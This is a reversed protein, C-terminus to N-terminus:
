APTLEQPTTALQAALWDRAATEDLFIKAATTGLSREAQLKVLMASFLLCVPREQSSARGIVSAFGEALAGTQVQYERCDVFVGYRGYRRAQGVSRATVEDVFAALVPPTWFGQLRITFIRAQEDFAFTYM